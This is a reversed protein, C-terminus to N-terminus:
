ATDQVPKDAMLRIEDWRKLLQTDKLRRMAGKEPYIGPSKCRITFSDASNNFFRFIAKELRTSFDLFDDRLMCGIAFYKGPPVNKLAVHLNVLYDRYLNAERSVPDSLWAFSRIMLAGQEVIWDNFMQESHMFYPSRAIDRATDRDFDSVSTRIRQAIVLLNEHADLRREMLQARIQLRAKQRDLIFTALFSLLGGIAVGGLAFFASSNQSLNTLIQGM